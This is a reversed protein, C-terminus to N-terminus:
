KKPTQINKIAPSDIEEDAKTTGLIVIRQNKNTKNLKAKRSAQMNTQMGNRRTLGWVFMKKRHRFTADGDSM